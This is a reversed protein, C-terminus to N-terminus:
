DLVALLSIYLPLWAEKFPSIRVSFGRGLSHRDVFSGAFLSKASVWCDINFTEFSRGVASGNTIGTVDEAKSDDSHKTGDDEGTDWGDEAVPLGEVEGHGLVEAM